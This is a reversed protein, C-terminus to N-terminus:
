PFVLAMYDAECLIAAARQVDCHFGVASSPSDLYTSRAVDAAVYGSSRDLVDGSSAHGFIFLPRYWGCKLREM